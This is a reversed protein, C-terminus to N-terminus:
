ATLSRLRRVALGAALGCAVVLWAVSTGGTQTALVTLGAAGAVLLIVADAQWAIVNLISVDGVPTPVPLLLGIPLPGRLSDFVRLLTIFVAVLAWWPLAAGSLAAGDAVTLGAAAIGLTGLVFLALAPVIAHCGIMTLGSRGYISSPGANEAASRLGDCWVGVGLYAALAAAVALPWAGGPPAAWVGGQLWGAAAIALSGALMRLPFRRAAGLDRQVVAVPLPGSLAIRDRRGRTPPTRLAGAAGAVDGAQLLTGISQWRRAQRMLDAAQLRDLFRPILPLCLLVPALTALVVPVSMGALDAPEPGLRLLAVGVAGAALLAAGVPLTWRRPLSQGALWVVCLFIASAACGLVILGADALADVTAPLLGGVILAASVVGAALVALGALVAASVLFPRLLTVRRALATGVLFEVVFPGPLVPGRVPGVLLAVGALAVAGAALRSSAEPSVLVALNEADAVGLVMARLLPVAM